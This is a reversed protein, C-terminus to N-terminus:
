WGDEDELLETVGAQQQAMMEKRWQARKRLKEELVAVDVDKDQMYAKAVAKQLQEEETTPIALNRGPQEMMSRKFREKTEESMSDRSTDAADGVFKVLLLSPVITAAFMAAYTASNAELEIMNLSSSRARFRAGHGLTSFAYASSLAVIAVVAMFLSLQMETLYPLYRLQPASDIVIV